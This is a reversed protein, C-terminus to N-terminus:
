AREQWADPLHVVGDLIVPVERRLSTLLAQAQAQRGRLEDDAEGIQEGLARERRETARIRNGFFLPAAFSRRLTDLAGATRQRQQRLDTLEQRQDDLQVNLYYWLSFLFPYHLGVPDIASSDVDQGPKNGFRGIQVPCLAAHMGKEEVIPVLWSLRSSVIRLAAQESMGTLEPLLDRKTILIILSPLPENADRRQAAVNNILRIPRALKLRDNARNTVLQATSPLDRVDLVWQALHAGDLVLYISDSRRLRAQIASADQVETRDYAAAGRFDVLDIEMLSDLGRKLVLEFRKESNETGVEPVAGEECLLEWADMLDLDDDPDKTYLFYGAFGASMTAYMGHLFMTKGSQSAGLMTLTITHSTM